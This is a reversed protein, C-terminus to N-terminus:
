GLGWAAIGAIDLTSLMGVPRGDSASVVVAHSAGHEIMQRAADPLRDDPLVTLLDTTPADGASLEDIRDACRLIDLDTVVAWARPALSGSADALDRLVVIAHVHRTAMLRAVDRLANDPTCTLVRPHMADSVRAHEFTPTLYSGPIAPVSTSM